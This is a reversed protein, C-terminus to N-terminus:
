VIATTYGHTYNTFNWNIKTPVIKDFSMRYSNSGDKSVKGDIAKNFEATNGTIHSIGGVVDDFSPNKIFESYTPPPLSEIFEIEDYIMKSGVADNEADNKALIDLRTIEQGAPIATIDAYVTQFGTTKSSISVNPVTPFNSSVATGADRSQGRIQLFTANTENKYVIKIYKYVARDLVIFTDDGGQGRRINANNNGERDVTLAGDSAAGGTPDHAVTGVGYGKVWNQADATFNYLTPGQQASTTIATFFVVTMLLIKFYSKRM